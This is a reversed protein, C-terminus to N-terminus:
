LPRQKKNPNLGPDYNTQYLRKNNNSQDINQNDRIMQNNVNDNILTNSPALTNLQANTFNPTHLPTETNIFGDINNLDIPTANLSLDLPQQFFDDVEFNEPLDIENPDLNDNYKNLWNNANKLTSENKHLQNQIHTIINSSNQNRQESLSSNSSGNLSQIQNNSAESMSNRQDVDSFQRPTNIFDPMQRVYNTQVNSNRNEPGRQIEHISSDVSGDNTATEYNLNNMRVENPSRGSKSSPTPANSNFGASLDVSGNSRNTIMLRRGNTGNDNMNNNGNHMSPSGYSNYYPAAQIANSRYDPSAFQQNPSTNSEAYYNNYRNNQLAVQNGGQYNSYQNQQDYRRSYQDSTMVMSNPINSSRNRNMNNNDNMNNGYNNNDNTNLNTNNKSRGNMNNGNNFGFRNSNPYDFSNIEVLDGTNGNHMQELLNNTNNGYISALFRMIKDLTDSQIKHRERAIFNEKWLLENDHRVRRLDETILLQNRKMLELQEMLAKIDYEEEEAHNAPKNRVINDLLDERGKIFNKNEFQWIEESQILSGATPDQVKRWGYMNLQRVFSAFNNHKFYKPLVEKMFQERDFVQIVDGPDVWRIYKSNSDDNMMQWLKIVFAPRKNSQQSSIKKVAKPKKIVPLLKTDNPINGADNSSDVVTQLLDNNGLKNNVTTLSSNIDDAPIGDITNIFTSDKLLENSVDDNEISISNLIDDKNLIENSLVDDIDDDITRIKAKRENKTNKKDKIDKTHKSNSLNYAGTIDPDIPTIDKLHTSSVNTSVPSIVPPNVKDNIIIENSNNDPILSVNSETNSISTSSIRHSSGKLNDAM